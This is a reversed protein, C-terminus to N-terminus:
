NFPNWFNLLITELILLIILIIALIKSIKSFRRPNKLYISDLKNYLKWTYHETGGPYILAFTFIFTFVVFSIFFYWDPLKTLIKVYLSIFFSYFMGSGFALWNILPTMKTRSLFIYYLLVLILFQFFMLMMITRYEEGSYAVFFGGIIIFIQVLRERKEIERFLKNDEM